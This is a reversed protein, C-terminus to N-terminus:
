QALPGYRERYQALEDKIAATQSRIGNWLDNMTKTSHSRADLVQLNEPRNDDKVGNIHDVQEIPTLYRGLVKEVVLRHEPQWGKYSRNPHTPEWLMVYGWRDKRAHRGNHIRELPWKTKGIGNCLKSCFIRMGQSPKLRLEKGCTPCTKIVPTKTQAAYRCPM